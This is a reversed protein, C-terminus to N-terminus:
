ILSLLLFGLPLGVKAELQSIDANPPLDFRFNGDKSRIRV